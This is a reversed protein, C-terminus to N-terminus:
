SVALDGRNPAILGIRTASLVRTRRNRLGMIRIKDGAQLNALPRAKALREEVGWQGPATSPTLLVKGESTNLLSGNQSHLTADIVQFLAAIGVAIFTDARQAGLVVVEDGPTYDSLLAPRDRSIHANPTLEIDVSGIGVANILLGREGISLIEGTRINKEPIPYPKHLGEPDLETAPVPDQGPDPKGALLGDAGAVAVAVGATTLGARQM